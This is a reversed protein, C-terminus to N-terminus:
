PLNENSKEPKNEAGAGTGSTQDEGYNADGIGAVVAAGNGTDVEQQLYYDQFQNEYVVWGANTVFLMTLVVLFAIFWRKNAREARYMEGEHIYYPITVAKQEESLTEYPATKRKEQESM